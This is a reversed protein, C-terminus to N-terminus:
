AQPPLEGVLEDEDIYNPQENAILEDTLDFALEILNRRVSKCNINWGRDNWDAALAATLTVAIQLRETM